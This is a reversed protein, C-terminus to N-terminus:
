AVNSNWGDEFIGNMEGYLFVANDLDLASVFCIGQTTENFRHLHLYPIGDIVERFDM